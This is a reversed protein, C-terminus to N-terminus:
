LEDKEGGAKENRAADRWLEPSLLAETLNKIVTEWLQIGKEKTAACSNGLVGNETRTELPMFTKPSGPKGHPTEKKIDGGKVTQYCPNVLEEDMALMLSTEVEDAHFIDSQTDLIKEFEEACNIYYPLWSVNLGGIADMEIIAADTPAGNGGHGNVLCINQFGSASISKCIYGLYDMYDRPRLSLTGTYARHHLSNAITVSPAIVIKRGQKELREAALQCAREALMTDTGTPLHPGHQETAGLPILVLANEHVAEKIEERTMYEWRYSNKM